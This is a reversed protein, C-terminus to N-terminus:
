GGLVAGLAAAGLVADLKKGSGVRQRLYGIPHLELMLQLLAYRAGPPRMLREGQQVYIDIAELVDVVGEAVTRTVPRQFNERM